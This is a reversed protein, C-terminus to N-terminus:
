RLAFITGMSSLTLYEEPLAQCESKGQNFYFTFIIYISGLLPFPTFRGRSKPHHCDLNGPKPNLRTPLDRVSHRRCLKAGEAFNVNEHDNNLIILM